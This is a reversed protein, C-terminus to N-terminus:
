PLFLPAATPAGTAPTPGSPSRTSPKNKTPRSPESTSRASTAPSVASAALNASVAPAISAAPATAAGASVAASLAPALSSAAAPAADAARSFPKLALALGVSTLALVVGGGLTIARRRRHVQDLQTPLSLGAGSESM